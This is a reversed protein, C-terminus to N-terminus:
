YWHRRGGITYGGVGLLELLAGVVLLFIGLTVLIPLPLLWGLILLILGLIIM